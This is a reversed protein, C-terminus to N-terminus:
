IESLALGVGFSVLNATVGLALARRPPLSLLMAFLTSEAGAVAGEILSARVYFSPISEQLYHFGWWAFPHTLLTVCAAVLGLRKLQPGWGMGILMVVPIEIALSLALAELQTM